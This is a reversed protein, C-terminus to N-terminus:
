EQPMFRRALPRRHQERDERSGFPV